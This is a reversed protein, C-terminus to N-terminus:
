LQSLSNAAWSESVRERRRLSPCGALTAWFRCHTRGPGTQRGSQALETVELLVLHSGVTQGATGPATHTAPPFSLSLASSPGLSQTPKALPQRTLPAHAALGQCVRRSAPLQSGASRRGDKGSRATQGTEAWVCVCVCVCLAIVPRVPTEHLPLTLTPVQLRVPWEAAVRHGPGRGLGPARSPKAETCGRM